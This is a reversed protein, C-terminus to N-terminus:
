SVTSASAFFSVWKNVNHLINHQNQFLSFFHFSLTERKRHSEWAPYLLPCFPFVCTWSGLVPPPSPLHHNLWKRYWYLRATYPLNAFVKNFHARLIDYLAHYSIIHLQSPELSSHLPLDRGFAGPGQNGDHTNTQHKTKNALDKKRSDNEKEEQSM